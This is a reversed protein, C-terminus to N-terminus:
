CYNKLWGSVAEAINHEWFWYIISLVFISFLFYFLPILTVQVRKYLKYGFLKLCYHPLFCLKQKIKLIIEMM